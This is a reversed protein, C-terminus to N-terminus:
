LFHWDGTAFSYLGLGLNAVMHSLVIASVSRSWKLLWLWLIGCLAAPLWEPHGMVFLGLSAAGATANFNWAPIPEWNPATVFRLLFDRTFLEEVIPVVVVLGLMRIAIFAYRWPTELTTPDFASRKGGLFDPLGPYLGDLGIWFAAIFAGILISILSIKKNPLPILDKLAQRSVIMAIIVAAIKLAYILAYQNANIAGDPGVSQSELQTGIMFVAFPAIYPWAKVSNPKSEPLVDPQAPQPAPSGSTVNRSNGDSSDVM